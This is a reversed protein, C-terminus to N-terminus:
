KSMVPHCWVPTMEGEPNPEVIFSKSVANLPVAHFYAIAVAFLPM